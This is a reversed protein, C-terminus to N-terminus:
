NITRTVTLRGIPKKSNNYVNFAMGEGSVATDVPDIIGIYCKRDFHKNALYECTADVYANASLSGVSRDNREILFRELQEQTVKHKSTRVPGEVVFKIDEM